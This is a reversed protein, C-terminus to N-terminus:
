PAEVVSVDIVENAEAQLYTRLLDVNRLNARFWLDAVDGAVPVTGLLFDFLVNALMKAIVDGPVGYKLGRAILSVSVAASLLDGAVPVLGVLADLGVPGVVPLRVIADMVRATREISEAFERRAQSESVGEAAAYTGFHTVRRATAQAGEAARRGTRTSAARRAAEALVRAIHDTARNAAREFLWRLALYTGLAISALIALVGILILLIEM